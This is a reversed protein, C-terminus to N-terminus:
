KASHRCIVLVEQYKKLAAGRLISQTYALRNGVDMPSTIDLHEFVGVTLDRIASIVAPGEHDFMDIYPFKRKVLNKNFAALSSDYVVLIESEEGEETEDSDEIDYFRIATEIGLTKDGPPPKGLPKDVSAIVYRKKSITKSM